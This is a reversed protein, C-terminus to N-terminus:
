NSEPTTLWNWFKGWKSGCNRPSSLHHAKKQLRLLQDYHSRVARTKLTSYAENIVKLNQEALSPNHTMKDPHWYLVLRRYALKIDMDSASADVGLVDYFTPQIINTQQKQSM